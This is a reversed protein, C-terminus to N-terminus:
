DSNLQKGEDNLVLENPSYKVSGFAIFVSEEGFFDRLSTLQASFHFHHTAYLLWKVVRKWETRACCANIQSVYIPYAICPFLLDRFDTEM